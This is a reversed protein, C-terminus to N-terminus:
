GGTLAQLVYIQSRERVPDTLRQRDRVRQGDIFVVVHKRLEGQEDLVYDRVQPHAAFVQDLAHALTDAAVETDPCRVHRLLNSTFVVRPM